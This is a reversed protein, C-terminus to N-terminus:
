DGALERLREILEAAAGGRIPGFGQLFFCEDGDVIAIIEDYDATPSLTPEREERWVRDALDFVAALKRGGIRRAREQDMTGFSPKGAGRAEGSVLNGDLSLVVRWASSTLGGGAAYIGQRPLLPRIAEPLGACPEAKRPEQSFKAESAVAEEGPQREAGRGNPAQSTKCGSAAVLAVMAVAALECRLSAVRM